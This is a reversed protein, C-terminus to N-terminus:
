PVILKETFTRQGIRVQLIYVGPDFDAINIETSCDEFCNERKSYVSQGTLHRISVEKEADPTLSLGQIIINLKEGKVPNPYVDVSIHGAESQDAYFQGQTQYDDAFTGEHIVPSLRNGAIPREMTGDPLQWGVALHDSGVGQKHLAEIYYTKGKTLTIAVSIQSPYKDWEHMNTAGYVFAIKKKNLPDADSSLWLESHDNSALWFHYEGTAPPCIYGRIRAAYHSGINVPGEFITLAEIGDPATDVPIDGIQAGPIGTWYERTISGSASCLAGDITFNVAASTASAGHNDTVVATLTYTGAAVDTWTFMYPTTLDEGLKETGNFFAVSFVSGDADSAEVSIDVVAPASFRAGNEPATIRVQPTSNGSGEFPLLRMGPIPREFTGDPLQWGVSLHDSGVGEKHLVEIYYKRNAKLNVAQSKQTPFKEWQRPNTYGTVSAIRVKKEVTEDLSIWLESNDNSAVWFTYAGDVPAMIYGRIRSGYQDGADSPAELSPLFSTTAPPTTLPIDAIEKGPIDIWAERLIKGNMATDPSINVTLAIHHLPRQIDNTKFTLVSQTTGATLNRADFTLAVDLVKDSVSANEPDVSIWPQPATEIKYSVANKGDNKVQINRTSIQGATIDFKVEHPASFVAETEFVTIDVPIEEDTSQEIDTKLVLTNEYFGPPRQFTIDIIQEGKVPIIGTRPLITFGDLPTSLSLDFGVPVGGANTLTLQQKGTEGKTLEMSVGHLDRTISAEGIVSLAAPVILSDMNGLHILVDSEYNGFNMASADFLLDINVSQGAQVIGETPQPLIFAPTFEGGMLKFEDVDMAPGPSEIGSVFAVQGVTSALGTGSFVHYNNIFLDYTPFASTDSGWGNYEIALDFYGSPITVAIKKWHFAYENDVIMAELTGDANFRIRTAVYSWPDQPVVEWSAGRAHDLNLRMSTTTYQPYDYEDIDFLYPSLAVNEGTGSPDKTGRLHHVGRDPKQSAVAWSHTSYWGEAELMGEPFNEFGTEYARSESVSSTSKRAQSDSRKKYGGSPTIAKAFAQEEPSRAALKISHRELMKRQRVGSSDNRTAIRANAPAPSNEANTSVMRNNSVEVRFTRDHSGNNRLVMTRSVKTGKALTENFSEPSAVVPPEELGEGKVSLRLAANRPDNTHLTIMGSVPGTSVPSFNITIERSQFSAISVPTATEAYFAATNSTIDSITLPHSGANSVIVKQKRTTGIQASKFDLSATSISALPTGNDTVRMTLTLVVSNNEPDNSEILVDQRYIGAFLESADFTVSVTSSQGPSVAGQLPDVVAFAGDEPKEISFRLPAKGRNSISFTKTSRVATKLDQKIATPRVVMTPTLASKESIVNSLPSTNGHFDKARLAFYFLVGGRLNGVTFVEKSGAAQPLPVGTAATARAFNADTIPSTSYRLDYEAVVDNEDQPSTWTLTIEGIDKKLVALDQVQQPPTTNEQLALAANLRGSGLKGAFPANDSNIDDVSQLLKLRLAEPRLGPESFKSVVLGAVGSVHPCAMSTGMFSGYKNGPLTSIVGQQDTTYTEGGPATIDVWSGYNSYEARIDKHTSSAVALVPEYFAPYYKSEDNFNGASFIVLGGKMPGIQRGNEDKGAEAIFYDIADLVVQEFVDPTTYGWSNQSIVAGNDASYIYAEAFGGSVENNFVACSMLSVGDGNGSGGAVGAVGLGNNNAAAITGAVHTGHDEPSITGTNDAFDYGHIDDVYGNNDDDIGNGKIEGRNVWMNPALDPHDTQIGGDTVAIIVNKSGTESKWAEFLRIDAGATGGTQGTNHYHWQSGILPDNSGEPLPSGNSVDEAVLLRVAHAGFNAKKYVPEAKLIQAESQYSRILQSVPISKDISVEYWLHLGHKRHRAENKGAHPFVRTFRRVKLQSNLQDVSRVGTVVEGSLNKSFARSELQTALTENVKIRAVGELTEQAFLKSTLILSFVIAASINCRFQRYRKIM